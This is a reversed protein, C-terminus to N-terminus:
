ENDNYNGGEDNIRADGAVTAGRATCEDGYRSYRDAGEAGETHVVSAINDRVHIMRNDGHYGRFYGISVYANDSTGQGTIQPIPSDFPFLIPTTLEIAIVTKITLQYIWETNTGIQPPKSLAIFCPKNDMHAEFHPKYQDYSNMYNSDILNPEFGILENYPNIIEDANTGGTFFTASRSSNLNHTLRESTRNIYQKQMLDTTKQKQLNTDTPATAGIMKRSWYPSSGIARTFHAPKKINGIVGTYTQEYVTHCNNLIDLHTEAFPIATAGSIANNSTNPMLLTPIGIGNVYVDRLIFEVRPLWQPNGQQAQGAIDYVRAFTNDLYEDVGDNTWYRNRMRPICDWSNAIKIAPQWQSSVSKTTTGTTQVTFLDGKEIMWVADKIKWYRNHKLIMEIDAKSTYFGLSNDPVEYWDTSLSVNGETGASNFKPQRQTDFARILYTHTKEIEVTNNFAHTRTSSTPGSRLGGSALVAGGTGGSAGPTNTDMPEAPPAPTTAPAMTPQQIRPKKSPPEGSGLPDENFAEVARQENVAAVQYHEEIARADVNARQVNASIRELESNIESLQQDRPASSDGVWANYAHHVANIGHNVREATSLNPNLANAISGVIPHGGSVQATGVAIAQNATHRASHQVARIVSNVGNHAQYHHLDGM